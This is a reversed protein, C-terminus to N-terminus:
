IEVAVQYTDTTVCVFINGVFGQPRNGMAFIFCAVLAGLYGYQAADTLVKLFSVQAITNLINIHPINFTSGELSSTLIVQM